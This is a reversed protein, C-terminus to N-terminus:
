SKKSFDVIRSKPYKDKIVEEFLGIEDILGMDKAKQGTVVDSSFV